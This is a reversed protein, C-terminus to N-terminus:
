ADWLFEVESVRRPGILVSRASDAQHILRILGRDAMEELTFALGRHVRGKPTFCAFYSVEVAELLDRVPMRRGAQAEKRVQKFIARLLSLRPLCYYGNDDLPVVLGLFGFLGVALRCKEENWGFLGGWASREMWRHTHNAPVHVADLSVLHDHVGALARQRADSQFRLGALLELRFDDTPLDPPVRFTRKAWANSNTQLELVGATLMFGIADKLLEDNAASFVGPEPPVYRSVLSEYSAGPHRRIHHFLREMEPGRLTIRNILLRDAIAPPVAPPM